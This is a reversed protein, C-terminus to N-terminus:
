IDDIDGLKELFERGTIGPTLGLSKAKETVEVVRSSLIDSFDKVGKVRGAVDGMSSAADINLYGCMIFGRKVKILILPANGMDIKIGLATENKLEIQDIIM